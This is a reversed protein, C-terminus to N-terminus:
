LTTFTWLAMMITLLLNPFLAEKGSMETVTIMLCVERAKISPWLKQKEQLQKGSITSSETVQTKCKPTLTRHMLTM